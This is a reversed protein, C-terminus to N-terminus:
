LCSVVNPNMGGNSVGLLISGDANQSQIVVTVVDVYIVLVSPYSSWRLATMQRASESAKGQSGHRSKMM